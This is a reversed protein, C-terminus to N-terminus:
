YNRSSRLPLNPTPSTGLGCRTPGREQYRGVRFWNHRQVYTFCCLTRAQLQVSCHLRGTFGPNLEAPDLPSLSQLEIRRFLRISRCSKPQRDNSPTSQKTQPHWSLNTGNPALNETKHTHLKSQALQHCRTTGLTSLLLTRFPM